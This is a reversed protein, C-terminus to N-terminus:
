RLSHSTSPYELDLHETYTHTHTFNKRRRKMETARSYIVNVCAGLNVTAYVFLESHMLYVRNAKMFHVFFFFRTALLMLAFPRLSCAVTANLMADYPMRGLSLSLTDTHEHARPM